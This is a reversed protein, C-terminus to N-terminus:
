KYVEADWTWDEVEGIDAGQRTVLDSLEGDHNIDDANALLEIVLEDDTLEDLTKIPIGDANYGSDEEHYRRLLDIVEDRTLLQTHTVKDIRTISFRKADVQSSILTM